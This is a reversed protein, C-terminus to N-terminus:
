LLVKHLVGKILTLVPSVARSLTGLDQWISDMSAERDSQLVQIALSMFVIKVEISMCRQCVESHEGHQPTGADLEPPHFTPSDM